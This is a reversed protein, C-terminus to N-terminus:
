MSVGVSRREERERERERQTHTGRAEGGKTRLGEILLVAVVKTAFVVPSVRPAAAEIPM